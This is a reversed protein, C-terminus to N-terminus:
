ILTDYLKKMILTTNSIGYNKIFEPLNIQINLRLNDNSFKNIVNKLDEANGSKFLFGNVNDTVNDTVINKHEELDSVISPLQFFMAELLTLPQALTGKLSTSPLIFVDTVQFIESINQKGMLVKYNKNKIINQFQKYHIEFKHDVGHPGYTVILLFIRENKIKNFANILTFFGKREELPGIYTYIIKDKPLNFKKLLEEKKFSKKLTSTDVGFPTFKIKKNYKPWYLRTKKTLEIGALTFYDLYRIGWAYKLSAYFSNNITCITFIAPIKFRLKYYATILSLIPVSSYEHILSFNFTKILKCAHIVYFFNSIFLRFFPHFDYKRTDIFHFHLNYERQQEAWEMYNAVTSKTISTLIHIEYHEALKKLYEYIIKVGSTEIAPPWLGEIKTLIKKM